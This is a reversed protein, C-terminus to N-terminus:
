KTELIPIDKKLVSGHKSVKPRRRPKKEKVKIIIRCEINEDKSDLLEELYAALNPIDSRSINHQFVQSTEAQLSKPVYYIPVREVLTLNEAKTADM